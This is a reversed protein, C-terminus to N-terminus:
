KKKEMVTPSSPFLRSIKWILGLEITPRLYIFSNSPFLCLMRVSGYVSVPTGQRMAFNYGGGVAVSVMGYTHGAWRRLTVKGDDAVAYTTGGLFTRSFGIGPATETFWGTATQRRRLREVRVFVNDHFTPHHYFGINAALYYEKRRHLTDRATFLKSKYPWEVGATLGPYIVSGLWAVKIGPYLVPMGAQPQANALIPMLLLLSGWIRSKM